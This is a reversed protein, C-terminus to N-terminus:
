TSSTSMKNLRCYLDNQVHEFCTFGFFCRLMKVEQRDTRSCKLCYVSKELGVIFLTANAGIKMTVCVFVLRAAVFVAAHM